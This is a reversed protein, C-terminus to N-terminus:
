FVRGIEDELNVRLFVDRNWDLHLRFGPVVQAQFDVSSVSRVDCEQSRGISSQSTAFASGRPGLLVRGEVRGRVGLGEPRSAFPRPIRLPPTRFPRLM